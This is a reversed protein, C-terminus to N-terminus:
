PNQLESSYTITTQYAGPAAQTWADNSIKIKISSVDYENVWKAEGTNFEFWKKLHAQYKTNADFTTEYLWKDDTVTFPITKSSDETGVFSGTHQFSATIISTKRVDEINDIELGHNNEFDIITENDGYTISTDAPITLTWTPDGITFTFTYVATKANEGLTTQAATYTEAADTSSVATAASESFVNNGSTIAM